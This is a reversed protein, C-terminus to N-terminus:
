ALNMRRLLATFRPHGHLSRFLFSGRVGHIPGSRQEHARELCDIAAEKEGLGTYAYAYHYPSVFRERALRDLQELLARARGTDGSEALAQALQAPFLSSAPALAVARELAAIGAATDGRRLLAWGLSSSCRPSAPDLAVSRRAEDVAEEVRGARLLTTAVDSPTTLPDLERARRVARLADDWRELANCLWSYHDHLDAAGPSLEIAQLLAREAGQWDYDFVFGVLGAVGHAAPLEPDLSLARAAAERALRISEAPHEAVGELATEVHAQAVGAHALAFGPDRDLARQLEALCLRYGEATFRCLAHRARLYHEYAALDDTPGRRGVRAREDSSLEARLANAIDLAVQAQIAFVDELDRDFTGAWLHEDSAADVLQAVVRVRGGRRRVSGELVARVGLREGIERLTLERGALARVSTRSIVRVSRIRALEAIVDETIGDAFLDDDGGGGLDVFPLVAVSAPRRPEAAPAPSAPLSRVGATLRYGRKPVTVIAQGGGGPDGLHRRLQSVCATLAHDTVFAGNWVVAHLTERDVVQGPREALCVLLDMVRPELHCEGGAGRIRNERPLVVLDDGLRFGRRLESEPPSPV